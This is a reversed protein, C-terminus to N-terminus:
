AAVRGFDAHNVLNTEYPLGTVPNTLYGTGAYTGLPNNHLPGRPGIDIMNGLDPDLLASFQVVTVANSRYGGDGAAGIMPPPGPNLYANTPSSRRLAFPRVNRWQAGVFTQVKEPLILGNQSRRFDFALPQWRNPDVLSFGDGIGCSNTLILPENVSAYTEDVYNSTELAGDYLAFDLIARGCRVGTANPLPGVANTFSTSYGLNTMVAGLHILTQTSNASRAYRQSLVTYAAYSIAEHQASALDEPPTATENNIYGVAVPDYAAWADYMAVSLHFLNRAHVPPDPFDIKIAELCAENWVRAVTQTAANASQITMVLVFAMVFPILSRGVKIM